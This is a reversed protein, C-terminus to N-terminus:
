AAAPDGPAASGAVFYEPRAAATSRPAAAARARPRRADAAARDARPDGTKARRRARAQVGDVLLQAATSENLGAGAEAPTATRTSARRRSPRAAQEVPTPPKAVQDGATATAYARNRKCSGCTVKAVDPDTEYHRADAPVRLAWPRTDGPEILKCGCVCKAGLEETGLHWTKTSPDTQARYRATTTTTDRSTPETM